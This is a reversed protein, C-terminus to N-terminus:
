GLRLLVARARLTGREGRLRDLAALATGPEFGVAILGALRGMAEEAPAYRAVDLGTRQVTTVRGPGLDLVDEDPLPGEAARRAPHPDTRRAGVPVLVDVRDPRPGGAHVWAASARGVVGRRPVLGGVAALRIAPTVEVGARVAVGDWLPVLAGDLVMGTWVPGPVEERRVLPSCDAGTPRYALLATSM